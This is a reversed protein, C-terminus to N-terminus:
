AYTTRKKLYEGIFNISLMTLVIIIGPFVVVWWAGTLINSQANTLMNGWSPTGQPVGIGLFSMAVEMFISQACNLTSIVVVAPMSNRLLHNILIKWTPTGMVIAAKVFNKDRLEAFQSRVIRATSLWSTCGIVLIISTLGGKIISQLALMIIMTPIALFTDLLRMMASDISGGCYGSIGGYIIGIVTSIIVSFIGVSLSVRGGYLIRSFVDRGMDDTGMIYTSNPQELTKGLDVNFANHPALVPALISAIVIICFLAIWMIYGRKKM